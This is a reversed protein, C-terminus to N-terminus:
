ATCRRSMHVSEALKSAPSLLTVPYHLVLRSGQKDQQMDVAQRLMSKNTLEPQTEISASKGQLSAACALRGGPSSASRSTSACTRRDCSSCRLEGAEEFPLLAAATPSFQWASQAAM